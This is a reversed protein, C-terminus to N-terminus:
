KTEGIGADELIARAERHLGYSSLMGSDRKARNRDGALYAAKLEAELSRVAREYAVSGRKIDSNWIITDALERFTPEMRVREDSM